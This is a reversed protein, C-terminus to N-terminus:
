QVCGAGGCGQAIGCCLCSTTCRTNEEKSMCQAPAHEQSGGLSSLSSSKAKWKRGGMSPANPNIPLLLCGVAGERSIALKALAAETSQGSAWCM